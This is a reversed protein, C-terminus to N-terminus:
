MGSAMMTGLFSQSRRPQCIHTHHPKLNESGADRHIKWHNASAVGVVSDVRHLLHRCHHRFFIYRPLPYICSRGTSRGRQSSSAPSGFQYRYTNPMCWQRHCHRYGSRHYTSGYEPDDKTFSNHFKQFKHQTLHRCNHRHLHHRIRHAVINRQRYRHLRNRHHTLDPLKEHSSCHTM